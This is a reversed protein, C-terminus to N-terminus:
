EKRNTKIWSNYIRVGKKAHKVFAIHFPIAAFVLGLGAVALTPNAKGGFPAVGYGVCFGGVFELVYGIDFKKKAIKMEKYAETNVRTIDLLQRPKLNKGQQRFATGFGKKIEISDSKNQAFLQSISFLFLIGILILLKKMIVMKLKINMNSSPNVWGGM